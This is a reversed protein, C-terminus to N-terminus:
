PTTCIHLQGFAMKKYINLKFFVLLICIHSHWLANKQSKVSWNLIKEFFDDNKHYLISVLIYVNDAVSLFVIKHIYKNM